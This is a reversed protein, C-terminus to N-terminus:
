PCSFCILKIPSPNCMKIFADIQLTNLNKVIYFDFVLDLKVCQVKVGVAEMERELNANVSANHACVGSM